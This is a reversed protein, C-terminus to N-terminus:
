KKTIAHYIPKRYTADISEAILSRYVSQAIRKEKSMTQYEQKRYIQCMMIKEESDVDM